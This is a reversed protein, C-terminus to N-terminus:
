FTRKFIKIIFFLVVTIFIVSFTGYAYLAFKGIEVLENSISVTNEGIKIFETM